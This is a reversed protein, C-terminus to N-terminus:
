VTRGRGGTEPTPTGGHWVNSNSTSIKDSKQVCHLSYRVCMISYLNSVCARPLPVPPLLIAPYSQLHKPSESTLLFFLYLFSRACVCSRFEKVIAYFPM